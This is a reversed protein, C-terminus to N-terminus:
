EHQGLVDHTANPNQDRLESCRIDVEYDTAKVCAQPRTVYPLMLDSDHSM